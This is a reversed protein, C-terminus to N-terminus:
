IIQICKLPQNSVQQEKRILKLADPYSVQGTPGIQGVSTKIHGMSARGVLPYVHPITYRFICLGTYTDINEFVVQFLM